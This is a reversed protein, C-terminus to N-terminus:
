GVQRERQVGACRLQTPYLLEQFLIHIDYASYLRLGQGRGGSVAESILMIDKRKPLTLRAVSRREPLREHMQIDRRCIHEGGRLFSVELRLYALV